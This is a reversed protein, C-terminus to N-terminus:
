FRSTVPARAMGPAGAHLPVDMPDSHQRPWLTPLFTPRRTGVGHRYRLAGMEASAEWITRRWVIRRERSRSKQRFISRSISPWESPGVGPGGGRAHICYTKHLKLSVVEACLRRDAFASRLTIQATWTDSKAEMRRAIDCKRSM